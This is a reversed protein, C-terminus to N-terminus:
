YKKIHSHKSRDTKDQEHQEYKQLAHCRKRMRMYVTIVRSLTNMNRHGIHWPRVVMILSGACHVQRGPFMVRGHDARRRFVAAACRCGILRSGCAPMGQKHRAFMSCYYDDIIIRLLKRKRRILAGATLSRGDLIESYRAQISHLKCSILRILTAIECCVSGISM